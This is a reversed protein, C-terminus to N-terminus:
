GDHAGQDIKFLESELAERAEKPSLMEVESLIALMEEDLAPAAPTRGGTEGALHVALSDITPYDWALTSDVPFSLWAGLESAMQLGIVSDLGLSTFPKRSDISEETLGIRAALWKTIWARIARSGTGDAPARPGGAEVELESVAYAAPPPTVAPPPASRLLSDVAHEEGPAESDVTAAPFAELLEQVEAASLLAAEAPTKTLARRVQEEFRLDAWERARRVLGSSSDSATVAALLLAAATLEGALGYMWRLSTLRDAHDLRAPARQGMEEVAISLREAIRSGAPLQELFGLVERDGHLLSSGVFQHLVESPGEFIRFIRADRLIQPAPNTEVYGRGGHLQVLHDAAQWLHEAAATKACALVERPVSEGQDLRGALLQLLAEVAVTAAAVEGLRARTVPHDLLLGTAVHRRGAYRAMLQACRSLGGASVAVLFLRSLAIADEAVEMGEGVSGLLDEEGVAVGEFSVASQVMGRLGMTLAESGLRLGRSGPRVAFGTMGHPGGAAPVQAFVHLVGAWAASGVWIKEGWLSWGKGGPIAKTTIARPNSGAAPESLAFAGLGRGRALDPLLADRVQPTAYRELPRLGLSNHGSVLSGITLDIAGLQALVRVAERHTLGLGGLGPAVRLGFFGRNGLEMIVSPPIARREDILRGNLRERAWERVWAVAEDARTAAAALATPSVESAPRLPEERDTERAAPAAPAPPMGSLRRLLEGATEGRHAPPRDLVWSGAEQLRGNLLDQRCAGRRVKGSSTKPVAKAPTLVLAYVQLEHAEAVERCVREAILEVNLDQGTRVEQLVILREEGGIDLSFAAGCGPRLEPGSREVTLEIDQPYYNRGRIVILDKLRGTVYLEGAHLFGLDGTRLFPGAGDTTRAGFTAATEEPRNWYGQTVCPGAVWIEGAEDAGCRGGTQPDAIVVETGPVVPGCGVLTKTGRTGPPAPEVRGMLELADNRVALLSPEGPRAAVTLTSEALGFAPCFAERRFGSPGFARCFDDLTEAHIPEAANYAVRWSSLDLGEREEPSTRNVCLAYAFNPGGSHTARVRSIAQLWRLPREVVSQPSMLYSPYGAYIPEFIGNVLGDDHFNPVWILAASGPGYGKVRRIAECSALANGHGVMVGKPASTSGSTYQLYALEDGSGAREQWGDAEGIEIEDTAIWTLSALEPTQRILAQISTLVTLTTLALVPEADAAVTRLRALARQARRPDPPPLPVAIIGAYVCGFFAAVFDLGSPFLLLARAGAPACGELAAAIARALLDLNGYRLSPGPVGEESHFTTM